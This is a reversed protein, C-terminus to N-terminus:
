FRLFRRRRATPSGGRVGVCLVKSTDWSLSMCTMHTGRGEQRCPEGLCVSVGLVMRDKLSRLEDEQSGKAHQVAEYERRLSQILQLLADREGKLVEGAGVQGSSALNLILNPKHTSYRSKVMPVHLFLRKTVMSTSAPRSQLM